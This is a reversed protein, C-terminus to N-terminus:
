KRIRRIPIASPGRFLVVEDVYDQELGAPAMDGVFSSADATSDIPNSRYLTQSGSLDYLFVRAPLYSVAKDHAIQSEAADRGIPGSGMVLYWKNAAVTIGSLIRRKIVTPQSVTYGMNSPATLTQDNLEAM